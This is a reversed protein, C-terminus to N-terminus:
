KVSHRFHEGADRTDFSPHREDSVWAVQRRGTVRDPPSGSPLGEAREWRIDCEIVFCPARPAYLVAAASIRSEASRLYSRRVRAIAILEGKGRPPHTEYFM